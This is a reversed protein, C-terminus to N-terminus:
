TWLWQHQNFGDQMLVLWRDRGLLAPSAPSPDFIIDIHGAIGEITVAVSKMHWMTVVGGSAVQINIPNAGALSLNVLTASSLPLHTIDAGTDAIAKITPGPTTTGGTLVLDAYPRNNPGSFAITKPYHVSPM